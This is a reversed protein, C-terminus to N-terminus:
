FRITRQTTVTPQVNNHAGNGGTFGTSGAVVQTEFVGSSGAPFSAGTDAGSHNHNPMEPITLTHTSEGIRVSPPLNFLRGASGAATGLTDGAALASGRLDPVNFNPGSGGFTYGIQAFLLDLLTTSYSSGDAVVRGPPVLTVVPFDEITGPPASEYGAWYVRTPTVLIGVPPLWTQAFWVGITDAGNNGRIYVTFGNTAAGQFVIMRPNTIGPPFDIFQDATISGSLSLIAANAQASTLIITGGTITLNTQGGTGAAAAAAAAASASAAAASASAQAAATEAQTALASLTFTIPDVGFTPNTQECVFIQGAYTNGNSIYVQTGDYTSDTNTFDLARTWAGTSVPQPTGTPLPTPGPIYYIGNTVPDINQWVLIRDGLKTQYGDIIPLGIMNNTFDTLTAVVCPVKYAASDNLGGIVGLPQPM